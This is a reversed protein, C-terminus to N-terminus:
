DVGLTTRYFKFTNNDQIFWYKEEYTKTSTDSSPSMHKYCYFFTNDEFSYGLWIYSYEKEIMIADFRVFEMEPRYAPYVGAHNDKIDEISADSNFYIGEADFPLQTHSFLFKADNNKLANKFLTWFNLFEQKHPIKQASGNLSVCILMCFLFNRVSFIGKM